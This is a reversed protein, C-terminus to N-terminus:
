VVVLYAFVFFRLHVPSQSNTNCFM